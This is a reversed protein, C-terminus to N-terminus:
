IPITVFESETITHTKMPIEAGKSISWNNLCDAEWSERIYFSFLSMTSTKGSQQSSEM